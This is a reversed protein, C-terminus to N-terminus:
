DLLKLLQIYKETKNSETCEVGIKTILKATFMMDTVLCQVVSDTKEMAMMITPDAKRSQNAISSRKMLINEVLHTCIGVSM